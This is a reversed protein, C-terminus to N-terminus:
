RNWRCIIIIRKRERILALAQRGDAARIWNLMCEVRRETPFGQILMPLRALHKDVLTAAKAREDSTTTGEILADPYSILFEEVMSLDALVQLTQSFSDGEGHLCLSLRSLCLAIQILFPRTATPGSPTAALSAQLRQLNSM